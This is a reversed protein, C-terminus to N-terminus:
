EGPRPLARARARLWANVEAKRADYTAILVIAVAGLADVIM